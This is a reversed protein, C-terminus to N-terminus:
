WVVVAAFTSRTLLACLAEADVAVVTHGLARLTSVPRAPADNVDGGLAVTVDLSLAAYAVATRLGQAAKEGDLPSRIVVLVKKASAM